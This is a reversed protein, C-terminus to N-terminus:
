RVVDWGSPLPLPEWSAPPRWDEWGTPWPREALVREGEERVAAASGADFIGLSQAEAFDSEDKWRWSGDPEVVLDLAWDTTDYGLPSSRLPAQLNVYWGLFSWSEDWCVEVTHAEEPRVLRLVQMRNWTHDHPEDGRVWRELYRGDPDRPMVKGRNGPGCHLALRGAEEAVFRHPFAWRVRGRYVSRILVADGTQM